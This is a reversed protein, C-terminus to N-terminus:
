LPLYFYCTNYQEQLKLMAKETVLYTKRGDRGHGKLSIGRGNLELDTTAYYHTAKQSITLEIQVATTQNMEPCIVNSTNM